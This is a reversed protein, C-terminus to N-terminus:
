ARLGFQAANNPNFPNLLKVAGLRRGDQFDETVLATAGMRDCVAWLLADWFVIGHRQAAAAAVAVDRDGYGAVESAERWADVFELAEAIPRRQKRTLVWVFEALAQAPILARGARMAATMIERCRLHKVGESSDAAYVLVNTDIGLM